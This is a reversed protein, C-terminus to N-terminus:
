PAIAKPQAPADVEEIDHEGNMWAEQFDNPKLAADRLKWAAHSVDSWNMNNSAWDHIEAPCEEFMPLTDEALSKEIDGDFECAYHTARDRAIVDVPVAWVSGDAQKITLVRM